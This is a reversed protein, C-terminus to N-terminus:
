SSVPLRQCLRTSNARIVPFVLDTILEDGVTRLRDAQAREGTVFGAEQTDSGTHLSKIDPIREIDPIRDSIDLLGHLGILTTGMCTDTSFVQTPRCTQWRM